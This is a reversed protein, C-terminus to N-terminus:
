FLRERRGRFPAAVRDCENKLAEIKERIAGILPELDTVQSTTSTTNSDTMAMLAGSISGPGLRSFHDPDIRHLRTAAEDISMSLDQDAFDLADTGIDEFRERADYAQLAVDLRSAYEELSAYQSWASPEATLRENAQEFAWSVGNATRQISSCVELRRTLLAANRADDRTQLAIFGQWLAIGIAVISLLVAIRGL